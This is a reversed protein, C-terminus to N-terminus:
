PSSRTPAARNRSPATAPSSKRPEVFVPERAKAAAVDADDELGEMQDRGHRRQLVDGHREFKGPARRAPLAGLALKGRDPKARAQVVIRGFKGAALLLADRQGTRERGIGGDDNGVFRGAIEVLGGSAVDDLKQEAAMLLAARRENQDGVVGFERRAAIAHQSM